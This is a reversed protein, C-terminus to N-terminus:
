LFNGAPYSGRDRLAQIRMYVNVVEREWIGLKVVDCGTLFRSM